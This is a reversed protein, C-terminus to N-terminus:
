LRRIPVFGELRELMHFAGGDHRIDDHRVFFANLRDYLYSLVPGICLDDCYGSAAPDIRRHDQVQSIM